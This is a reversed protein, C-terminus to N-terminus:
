CNSTLCAVEDFMALYHHQCLDNIIAKSGETLPVQLLRLLKHTFKIFIPRTLCPGLIEVLHKDMAMLSRPNLKQKFVNDYIMRTIQVSQCYASVKAYFSEKKMFWLTYRSTGPDKLGRLDLPGYVKDIMAKM